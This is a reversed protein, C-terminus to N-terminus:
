ESSKAVQETVMEVGGHWAMGAWSMGHERAHSAPCESM